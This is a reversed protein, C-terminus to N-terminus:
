PRATTATRRCASPPFIAVAAPPPVHAIVGWTNFPRCYTRKMPPSASGSTLARCYGGGGATHNV